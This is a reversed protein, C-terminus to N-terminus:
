LSLASRLLQLSVAYCGQRTEYDVDPQVVGRQLISVVLPLGGADLLDACFRQASQISPVDRQTPM